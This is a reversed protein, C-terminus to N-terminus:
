TMRTWAAFTLPRPGPQHWFQPKGRPPSTGGQMLVRCRPRQLGAVAFRSAAIPSGGEVVIVELDKFTQALVSDVADLVFQGYNFSTVVVSVLPWDEPREPGALLPSPSGERGLLSLRGLTRRAGYRFM